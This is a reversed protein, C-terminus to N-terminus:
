RNLLPHAGSAPFPTVHTECAAISISSTAPDKLTQWPPSAHFPSLLCQKNLPQSIGLLTRPGKKPLLAYQHSRDLLPIGPAHLSCTLAAFHTPVHVKQGLENCLCRQRWCASNRSKRHLTGLSAQVASFPEIAVPSQIQEQPLLELGPYSELM